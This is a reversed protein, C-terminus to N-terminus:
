DIEWPLYNTQKTEWMSIGWVIIGENCAQYLGKHTPICRPSKTINLGIICFNNFISCIQWQFDLLILVSLKLSIPRIKEYQQFTSRLSYSKLFVIKLFNFRLHVLYLIKLLRQWHFISYFNENKIKLLIQIGSWTGDWFENLKASLVCWMLIIHQSTIRLSNFFGLLLCATSEMNVSLVSRTLLLVRFFCFKHLYFLM